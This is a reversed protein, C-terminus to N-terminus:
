QWRPPRAPAAGGVGGADWHTLSPVFDPAQSVPIGDSTTITPLADGASMAVAIRTANAHYMAADPAFKWFGGPLRLGALWPLDRTALIHFGITLITRIALAGFLIATLRRGGRLCRPLWLCLSASLLLLAVSPLFELRHGGELRGAAWGRPFPSALEGRPAGTTSAGRHVRL